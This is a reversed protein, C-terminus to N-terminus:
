YINREKSFWRWCLSYCVFFCLYSWNDFQFTCQVLIDFHTENYTQTSYSPPLCKLFIKVHIVHVNYISNKCHVSVKLAKQVPITFLEYAPLSLLLLCLKAQLCLFLIVFFKLLHICTGTYVNKWLTNFM